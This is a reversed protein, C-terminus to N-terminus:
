KLGAIIEPTIESFSLIRKGKHDKLFVDAQERGGIPVLEYGMPGYVDSGIVFSVGDARVLALTYYDTVYLAEVALDTKGPLYKEGDFVFRFLDKPGDFYLTRGSRMVAAALWHPAQSVYMRCVPCREQEGPEPVPGATGAPGAESLSPCLLMATLLVAPVGRM